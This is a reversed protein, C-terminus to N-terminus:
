CDLSPPQSGNRQAVFRRYADPFREEIVAYSTTGKAKAEAVVAKAIDKHVERYLLEIPYRQGPRRPTGTHGTRKSTM